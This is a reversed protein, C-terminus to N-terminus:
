LNPSKQSWILGFSDSDQCAIMLTGEEKLFAVATPYDNRIDFTAAM